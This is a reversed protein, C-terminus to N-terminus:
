GIASSHSDTEALTAFARPLHHVIRVEISGFYQIGMNLAVGSVGSRRAIKSLKGAIVWDPTTESSVEESLLDAIRRTWGDIPQLLLRDVPAIRDELRYLWALDRLLLSAIKPGVGRIDVIADFVTHVQETQIVRDRMWHFLNGVDDERYIAHVLALLGDLMWRNLQENPKKKRRECEELMAEWMSPPEAARMAREFAEQSPFRNQLAQVAIQAYSDGVAGRRSFAYHGLFARVVALSSDCADLVSPLTPDSAGTLRALSPLLVERQYREARDGALRRVAARSASHDAISHM